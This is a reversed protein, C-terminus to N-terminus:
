VCVCVSGNAKCVSSVLLRARVCVAMPQAPVCEVFCALVSVFCACVRRVRGEKEETQLITGGVVAGVGEDAVVVKGQGVGGLM